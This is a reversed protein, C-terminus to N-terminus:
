TKKINCNSDMEIVSIGNEFPIVMTVGDNNRTSFGVSSRCNGYVNTSKGMSLSAEGVDLKRTEHDMIASHFSIDDGDDMVAIGRNESTEYFEALDSTSSCRYYCSTGSWLDYVLFKNQLLFPSYCKQKEVVCYVYRKGASMFRWTLDTAGRFHLKNFNVPRHPYIYQMWM